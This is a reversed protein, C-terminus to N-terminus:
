QGFASVVERGIRTTVASLVGSDINESVFHVSGDALLFHCGGVHWSSAQQGRLSWTGNGPTTNPGNIGGATDIHNM